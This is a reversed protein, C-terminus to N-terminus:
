VTLKSAKLYLEFFTEETTEKPNTFSSVDTTADKAMEKYDRETMGYESLSPIGIREILQEVFVVADSAKKHAGPEFINAITEFREPCADVNYAMVVPLLNANAIGHPVNFKGGLPHALAHTNGLGANQFAIGALLSGAMMEERAELDEGNTVARVLSRSIMAIAELAIHDILPSNNNMTNKSTYAEIAHTLADSGTAATLVKPLKLTLVPDVLAIVPSMFPHGIAQKRGTEENTIVAWQTVESGTGSTTPITILPPGQKEFTRNGIIADYDNISGDNASMISIAKAADMVSGGGVAVISDFQQNQILMAGKMVVKSPPNAPIDHMVEYDYTHEDLQNTVVNAIGADMIGQDTLVLPRKKGLKQLQDHLTLSADRQFVVSTGVFFQFQITSM